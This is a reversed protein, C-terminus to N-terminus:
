SFSLCLSINHSTVLGSLHWNNQISYNINTRLRRQPSQMPTKTLIALLELKVVTYNNEADNLFNSGCTILGQAGM